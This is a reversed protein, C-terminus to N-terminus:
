LRELWTLQSGDEEILAALDANFTRGYDATIHAEFAAADRYVEYVFFARHDAQARHADFVINGPEARVQTALDKLLRQVELERGPKATFRAYLAQEENM